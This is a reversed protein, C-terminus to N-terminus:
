SSTSSSNSLQFTSTKAVGRNVLSMLTNTNGVYNNEGHLVAGSDTIAYIANSGPRNTYVNLGWGFAGTATARLAMGLDNTSSGELAAGTGQNTVKFGPTALNITQSFPLSLSGGGAMDVWSTGNYQWLS